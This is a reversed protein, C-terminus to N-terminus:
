RTAYFDNWDVASARANGIGRKKLIHLGAVGIIVAACCAFLGIYVSATLAIEPM